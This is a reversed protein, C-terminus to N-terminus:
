TKDMEFLATGTMTDRDGDQDMSVLSGRKFNQLIGYPM